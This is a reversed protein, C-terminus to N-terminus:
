CAINNLKLIYNEKLFYFLILSLSLSLSLSLNIYNLGIKKMERRNKVKRSEKM